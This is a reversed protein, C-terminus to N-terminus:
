SSEYFVNQFPDISPNRYHSSNRVRSEGVEHIKGLEAHVCAACPHHHSRYDSQVRILLKVVVIRLHDLVAIRVYREAVLIIGLRGSNVKGHFAEVPRSPIIRTASLYTRM